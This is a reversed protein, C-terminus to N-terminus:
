TSSAKNKEIQVKISEISPTYLSLHSQCAKHTHAPKLSDENNEDTIVVLLKIAQMYM